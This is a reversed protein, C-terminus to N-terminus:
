DVDCSVEVPVEMLRGVEVILASDSSIFLLGISCEETIESM